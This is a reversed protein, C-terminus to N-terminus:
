RGLEDCPVPVTPQRYGAREMIRDGCTQPRLVYVFSKCSCTKEEELHAVVVVCM